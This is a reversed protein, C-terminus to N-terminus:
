SDVMHYIDFVHFMFQQAWVLSKLIAGDNFFDGRVKIMRSSTCECDCSYIVVERQFLIPMRHVNAEYAWLFLFKFMERDNVDRILVLPIEVLCGM